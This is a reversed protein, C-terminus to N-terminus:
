VGQFIQSKKPFDKVFENRLWYSGVETGDFLVVYGDGFRRYIDIVRRESFPTFNKLYEEGENIVKKFWELKRKYAKQDEIAVRFGPVRLVNMKYTLKEIRQKKQKLYIDSLEDLKELAEEPPGVFIFSTNAGIYLNDDIVESLDTLTDKLNKGLYSPVTVHWDLTLVNDTM